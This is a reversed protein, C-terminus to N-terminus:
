RMATEITPRRTFYGGDKGPKITLLGESELMRAAQRLTPLSVGVEAAISAQSGMYAAEQLSLIRKRLIIAVRDATSSSKVLVSNKIKVVIQRALSPTKKIEKENIDYNNRRHERSKSSGIM